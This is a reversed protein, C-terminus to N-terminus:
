ICGDVRGWGLLPCKDEDVYCYVVAAAALPCCIIFDRRSGGSSGWSRWCTNVPLVDVAGAWAAELDVLLGVM